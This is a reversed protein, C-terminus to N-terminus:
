LGHVEAMKAELYRLLAEPGPSKGTARELLEPPDYLNGQTHVRERLWSLIPAFDGVRVREWLGPVDRLLAELLEAAYVNGLTYSPFYGVMGHSWHVDQLVGERDTPPEIGLLKRMEARWAEPLERVALKGAILDKELRYRLLVHLNYTVEDAETRIFSRAVRNAARFFEEPTRGALSPFHAVLRPAFYEWFPASRALVNELFRSQSEHVGLSAASMLGYPELEEPLNQEYIGHGGEHVASYLAYALDDEAYRTTLRVDTPHIGMTFPHASTDLRGRTFSFGIAELVERLFAEQAARPFPGGRFADPIEKGSREIRALLSTLGEELRAFLFDLRDVTLGPEYVDLLANYPHGQYGWREVFERLLGVIEELLPAFDAFRDEARARRWVAEGNATLEAFRRYRDEPIKRLRDIERRLVVAMRAPPGSLSGNRAAEELVAVDADTDPDTLMRHGYAALTAVARARAPVGEPPIMTQLDWAMLSRAQGIHALERQRTLLRELAEQPSRRTM